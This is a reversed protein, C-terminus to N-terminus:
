LTKLSKYDGLTLLKFGEKTVLVDDEIRIGLSGPIVVRGAAVEVRLEEAEFGERDAIIQVQETIEVSKAKEILKVM